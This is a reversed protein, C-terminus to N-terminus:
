SGMWFLTGKTTAPVKGKWGSEKHDGLRISAQPGPDRGKQAM